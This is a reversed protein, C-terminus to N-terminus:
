GLDPSDFSALAVMWGDLGYDLTAVADVGTTDDRQAQCSILWRKSTGAVDAAVQGSGPSWEGALVDDIFWRVTGKKANLEVELRHLSASVIGTDSTYLTAGANDTALCRWTSTSSGSTIFCYFGIFEALGSGSNPSSNTGFGWRATVWGATNPVTSKSFRVVDSLRVLAPGRSGIWLPDIWARPTLTPYVDFAHYGAGASNGGTVRMRIGYRATETQWGFSTVASGAGGAGSSRANGIPVVGNGIMLQTVMFPEGDPRAKIAAEVARSELRSPSTVRSAPSQSPIARSPPDERQEYGYTM